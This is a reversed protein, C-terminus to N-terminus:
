TSPAARASSISSMRRDVPRARRAVHEDPDPLVLQFGFPLLVVNRLVGSRVSSMGRDSRRHEDVDPM